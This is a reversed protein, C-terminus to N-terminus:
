NHDDLVLKGSEHSGERFNALQINFGRSVRLNVRWRRWIQGGRFTMSCGCARLDAFSCACSLVRGRKQISQFVDGAPTNPHTQDQYIRFLVKAQVGLKPTMTRVVLHRLKAIAVQHETCCRVVIAAGASVRSERNRPLTAHTMTHHTHSLLRYEQSPAPVDIKQTTKM